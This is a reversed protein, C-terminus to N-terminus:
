RVNYPWVRRPRLAQGDGECIAVIDQDFVLVVLGLQTSPLTRGQRITQCAPEDVAIQPLELANLEPLARLEDVSTADSLQLRGVRTRILGALHAPVGLYEGLDRALARVYTGSSVRARLLLTPFRGLPEPTTFLEGEQGPKWGNQAHFRALQAEQMSDFHAICELEHVVVSRASLDLTEGSRARSYARRGEVHIASFIPPIQALHGRLRELARELTITDPLTAHAMASIPGEADLTPTSAGLSVFALYEKEGQLYPVLRTSTESLLVLVGTALPDLTGSHGIRKTGLYRRARAVVDFSTLGLPKNVVYLGM